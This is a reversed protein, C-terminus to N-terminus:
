DFLTLVAILALECCGAPRVWGSDEEIWTHKNQLITMSQEAKKGDSHLRELEHNLKKEELELNALEKEKSQRVKDLDDLERAFASLVRTEEKLKAELTDHQQQLDVIARHLNELDAKSKQGGQEAEVIDAKAAEIDKDMQELLLTHAVSVNRLLETSMGMEMEATQVEKQMAKVETTQKALAAKRKSIDKKLEDLKSERNDKFERMEKELRKCETEADKQAEKCKIITAKLAEIQEKLGEVEAVIQPVHETVIAPRRLM